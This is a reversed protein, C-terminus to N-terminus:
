ARFWTSVMKMAPPYVGAVMMGTAFRTAVASAFGPALLLSANAAAAGLTSVAVLAREPMLDALNLLAVLATGVVFGLQVATTLWAAEAPELGWRLRLPEAVASATFWVSMGFLEAIAVLALAAARGRPAAEAQAAGGGVAEGGSRRAAGSTMGAFSVAAAPG